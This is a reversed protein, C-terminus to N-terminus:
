HMRHHYILYVRDFDKVSGFERIEIHDLENMKIYYKKRPVVFSFTGSFSTLRMLIM